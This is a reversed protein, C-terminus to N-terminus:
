RSAAGHSPSTRWLVLGAAPRDPRHVRCGLSFLLPRFTRYIEFRRTEARGPDGAHDPDARFQFLLAPRDLHDRLLCAAVSPHREPSRGHPAPLGLGPLRCDAGRGGTRGVARSEPKWLIQGNAEGKTAFLRKTTTEQTSFGRQALMESSHPRPNAILTEACGGRNGSAM